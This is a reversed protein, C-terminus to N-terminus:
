QPAYGYRRGCETFPLQSLSTMPFGNKELGIAKAATKVLSTVTSAGLVKAMGKSTFYTSINDDPSVNPHQMIHHVRCALAQIPCHNTHIADHHITGGCTGNKQNDIQMTAGEAM